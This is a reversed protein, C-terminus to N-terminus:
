FCRRQLSCCTNAHQAARCGGSHRWGHGPVDVFLGGVPDQNYCVLGKRAVVQVYLVFVSGTEPCV